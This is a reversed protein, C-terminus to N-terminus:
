RSPRLEIILPILLNSTPYPTSQFRHTISRHRPRLIRQVANCVGHQTHFAFQSVSLDTRFEILVTPSRHLDESILWREGKNMGVGRLLM